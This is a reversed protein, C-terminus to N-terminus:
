HASNAGSIDGTSAGGYDAMYCSCGYSSNAGSNDGSSAGGVNAYYCSCSGGMLVNMQKSELSKKSLSNLKLKLLQKM